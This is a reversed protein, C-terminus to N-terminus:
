CRKLLREEVSKGIELRISELRIWGAGVEGLMISGLDLYNTERYRVKGEEM